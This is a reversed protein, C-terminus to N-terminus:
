SIICVRMNFQCCMCSEDPSHHMVRHALLLAIDWPWPWPHMAEGSSWCHPYRDPLFQGDPLCYPRGLIHFQAQYLSKEHILIVCSSPLNIEITGLKKLRLQM